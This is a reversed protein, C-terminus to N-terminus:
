RFDAKLHPWLRYMRGPHHRWAFRPWTERARCSVGNQAELASKCSRGVDRVISVIRACTRNRDDIRSTSRRLHLRTEESVRGHQAPPSPPCVSGERASPAPHPAKQASGSASKAREKGSGPQGGLGRARPGAADRRALTGDWNPESRSGPTAWPCRPVSEDGHDCRRGFPRGPPDILRSSFHDM